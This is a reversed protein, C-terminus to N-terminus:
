LTYILDILLPFFSFHYIFTTLTTLILIINSSNFIFVSYMYLISINIYSKNDFYLYVCTIQFVNM